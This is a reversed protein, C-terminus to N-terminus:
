IFQVYAQDTVLKNYKQMINCELKIRDKFFTKYFPIEYTFKVFSFM